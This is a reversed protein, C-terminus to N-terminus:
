RRFLKCSDQYRFRTGLQHGEAHMRRIVDHNAEVNMYKTLFFTAKVGEEKLINLIEVTRNDKDDWGENFTLTVVKAM